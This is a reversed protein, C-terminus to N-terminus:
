GSADFRTLTVREAEELLRKVIGLAAGIDADTRQAIDRRILTDVEDRVIEFQRRVEGPKWGLRRRQDGHRESILRQIDSGDQMLEPEGGGEDLTILSKGIDLLFTAMHDELQARDLGRAGPVHPDGRLRTGIDRVLGDASAALIHGVDALGPVQGPRSPWDHATSAAEPAAADRAAPLWLTFCSGQGLTSRVTLDGEMLRAFRRSITLGLGTGGHKRTHGEEAQVFPQFVAKLKEPAIGMGTDEVRVYVWPGERGVDAEEGAQATCGCTVSVSGGSETFKVANSLLNVLIQRVRDEDGVYQVDSSVTCQSSLHLGRDTAQPTVLAIAEAVAYSASTREHEVEMQGAEIKSLDLVDNVLGLLHQGSLRVRELKGKQDDTLPGGIGMELLDTYGLIANIPTRIEHSMNALFQSKARNAFDAATRATQAEGYLLTNEIAISAMQALQLLVAEDQASFDGEYRDSLQILGLNRGDRAVMPAALWGRMPPHRGVEAGFAKWAPHSELEDQTMRMSRNAEGVLRYIGSGDPQVDYERWDAYRDSLSVANIAQSWTVDTSLSAVAQHAGVVRRAQETVTRLMDHVPASTNIVLAAQALAHLQDAYRQLEQETHKRQTVDRFYVSLGDASPYAHVEFWVGFMPAFEEFHAPQQTEMARRYEDEFRTGRFQPVADWFPVGMVEDPDRQLVARIIERTGRNIYTFRWDRDLHFFADTISELIANLRARAEQELALLRSSREEAEKYDTTDEIIGVVRYMEGTERRVPYGRAWVWRVQGDPWVIRYEVDYHGTSMGALATEVRQRDEPHVAELFSRPDRVLSERSRRWIEEYAPSIYIIRTFEPDSIWFVERIGEALQRFRQENEHLSERCRVADGALEEALLALGAASALTRLSEEQEPRPAAGVLSLVGLRRSDVELPVQWAGAAESGCVRAGVAPHGAGSAALVQVRDAGPFARAIFAGAAGAAARAQEAVRRLTEGAHFAHAAGQEDHM